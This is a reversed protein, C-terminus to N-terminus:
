VIRRARRPLVKDRWYRKATAVTFPLVFGISAGNHVCAHLLAGLEAVHDTAEDASLSSIHRHSM